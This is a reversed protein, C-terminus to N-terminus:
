KPMYVMEIVDGSSLNFGATTGNWFLVDNAVISNKARASSQATASSAAFFCDGSGSTTSYSVVQKMGNVFVQVEGNPASTFTLSSIKVDNGSSDSGSYTYSDTVTGKVRIYSDSGDLGTSSSNKVIVNRIDELTATKTFGETSNAVILKLVDSQVYDTGLAAASAYAVLNDLDLALENTGSNTLGGNSKITLQTAAAFQVFQLPTTDLTVSGSVRLIWSTAAYTDGYLVACFMGNTVESGPTNDADASRVLHMYGDGAVLASVDYIGNYKTYGSQTTNVLVREGVSLSVGDIADLFSASLKIEGLTVATIAGVAMGGTLLCKAAEKVDLGQISQDVYSKVADSSPVTDTLTGTFDTVISGSAYLAAYDVTTGPIGSIASDVYSKVLSSTPITTDSTPLISSNAGQTDVLGTSLHSLGIVGSSITIEGNNALSVEGSITVATVPSGTGQGIILQGSGINALKALAISNSKLQKGSILAM